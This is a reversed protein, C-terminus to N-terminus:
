RTMLSDNRSRALSRVLFLSLSLSLSLFARIGRLRDRSLVRPVIFDVGDRLDMRRGPFAPSVVAIRALPSPPPSVLSALRSEIRAWYACTHSAVAAPRPPPSPTPPILAASRAPPLPALCSSSSSLTYLARATSGESPLIYAYLLSLGHFLAPRWQFFELFRSYYFRTSAYV